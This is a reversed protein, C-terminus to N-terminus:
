CYFANKIHNINVRFGTKELEIVDFRLDCDDLHKYLIYLQATKIIKKQKFIDVASGPTAIPNNGRAKVEVFVVTDKKKAIVDIEGFRSHFNRDLISYGHFRLYRVAKNEGKKGTM